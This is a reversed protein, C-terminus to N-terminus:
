ADLRTPGDHKRSAKTSLGMAKYIPCIGVLTPLVFIAALIALVVATTGKVVGAILLAAIVAAAGLRLTRDIRGMNKKV